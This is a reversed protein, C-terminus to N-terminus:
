ARFAQSLKHRARGLLYNLPNSRSLFSIVPPHRVGLERFIGLLEDRTPDIALGENVASLAGRRDGSLLRVRALNLWIEPDWFEERAAQECYALGEKVRHAERALARGRYSHFLAPMPVGRNPREAARELFFLGRKWDGSRCLDIGTACLVGADGTGPRLPPNSDLM